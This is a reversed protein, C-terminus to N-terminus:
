AMYGGDVLYSAGTVYSSDDSCLFLALAAVEEPLGMRGLPVQAEVQKRVEDSIGAQIPTDIPGPCIANVRIGRNGYEAAAQRALMMVGAKAVSYASFGPTARLGAASATNVVAGGGGEIMSPIAHKLVLYQSRLVVGFIRDWEDAPYEHLPLEPGSIGANNCVSDVRGFRERCTAILAAVQQEDSVDCHVGVVEGTAETAVADQAGSIDAAIVRAGEQAFRLAMARGIGSGAGTVITAKGRVGRGVRADRDM